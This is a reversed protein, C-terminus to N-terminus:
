AAMRRQVWEECAVRWDPAAILGACALAQERQGLRWLRHARLATYVTSWLASNDSAPPCLEGCLPTSSIHVLELLRTLQELDMDLTCKDSTEKNAVFLPAASVCHAPPSREVGYRQDDLRLPLENVECSARKALASLQGTYVHFNFSVQYYTGVRVGLRRALYEQLVSFQVANAGYAGWIIDNSRCTVMIDLAWSPEDHPHRLMDDQVRLNVSTNCPRDRWPGRLDDAGTMADREHDYQRATADWMQVVVQRDGRSKRLKAVATDLQDHGFHGRWRAGYAGHVNGHEPEAFREGFDRVYNNLFEADDRGTLMWPVAEALHFFPNADRAPSFLVRETPNKYVTTVPYPVVLVDGARTPERRGEKLLLEVGLPLAEAVNRARVVFM